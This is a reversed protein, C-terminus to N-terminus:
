KGRIMGDMQQIQMQAMDFWSLGTQDECEDFVNMADSGDSLGFLKMFDDRTMGEIRCM